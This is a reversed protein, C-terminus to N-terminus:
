FGAELTIDLDAPEAVGSRATTQIWNEEASWLEKDPPVGLYLLAQRVIAAFAPAAVEGGHNETRPEDIMVLCVLRPRRAPAMGVFSAMYLHDSYGSGPIPKQATGTKGAVRYGPVQAKTGTGATVVEELVRELTLATSPSLVRRPPPRTVPELEDMTGVARVIYPTHLWGGNAVAAVANALQLASVAVEHGLSIYAKSQASWSELPHVIGKREAPLDIGTRSGFGFARITDYLRADEIRRTAKIVGVNSSKAIIERFSLEGFAGHDRVFAGGLQIGGNECFFRDQPDVAAVEFVAAAAVLKFTSGPEVIHEVARNRRHEEAYDQYTNPDFTPYSAMALVASDAPDLLVVTGGKAGSSRVAKRLEKEAIYQLSADVTLHLSRGPEPDAFTYDPDALASGIRGDNLLMRRVTSGALVEDYHYELGALGQSDVGVYGLVPALLTRNPYFRRSERYLGIGPIDLRRIENAQRRSLKRTIWYYDRQSGLHKEFADRAEADLGLIPALLDAVAAPAVIGKPTAYASDVQVSVALRRGRADFVTGRPGHVAVSREQQSRARESFEEFREVQVEYLRWGALVFWALVLSIFVILRSNM